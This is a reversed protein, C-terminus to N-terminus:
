GINSRPEDETTKNTHQEDQQNETNHKQNTQIPQTDQIWYQTNKHM